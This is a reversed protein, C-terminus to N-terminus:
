LKDSANLHAESDAAPLRPVLFNCMHREPVTPPRDIRHQGRLLPRRQLLGQTPRMQHGQADARDDAGADQGQDPDAGTQGTRRHQDAKTQRTQYAGARGQGIGLQRGDHGGRAAGIGIGIGRQALDESPDYPPAQDQFIRQDNRRHGHAPRAVGNGEQRPQADVQRQGQRDARVDLAAQDVQGGDEDDGNDGAQQQHAGLFAGRQVRHQHQHLDGGQHGEDGDGQRVEVGGVESGEHRM